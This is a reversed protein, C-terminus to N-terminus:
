KAVLRKLKASVWPKDSTCVKINKLPLYIDVVNELITYLMNFKEQVSSLQLICNWDFSMM